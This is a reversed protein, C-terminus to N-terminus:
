RVQTRKLPEKLFARPHYKNYEKKIHTIDVSTYRQTTSLKEHGLLQQIGNINCSNTLLHTAFSHRLMHTSVEEFYGRDFFWKKLRLQIQRNGIRNKQNTIFLARRASMYVRLKLYMRISQITVEGLPLHREKGGKGKVLLWGTRLQIDQIDLNRLESLRLGCGYLLQLMCQDRMEYFNDKDFRKSFVALLAAEPIIKPLRVPRKPARLSSALDLPWKRVQKLYRTFLRLSYIKRILTTKAIHRKGIICTAKRIDIKTVEREGDLIVELAEAWHTLDYEYSKITNVSLKRFKLSDLYIPIETKLLKLTFIVEQM